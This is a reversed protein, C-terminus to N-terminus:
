SKSGDNGDTGQQHEGGAFPFELQKQSTKEETAIETEAIEKENQIEGKKFKEIFEIQQKLTFWKIVLPDMKILLDSVQSELALQYTEIDGFIKLNNPIAVNLMQKKQYENKELDYFGQFTTQYTILTVKSSM